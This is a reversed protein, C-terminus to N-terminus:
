GGARWREPTATRYVRRKAQIGVLIGRSRARWRRRAPVSECRDPARRWRRRGPAPCSRSRTSCGRWSACRRRAASFAAPPRTRPNPGRTPARRTIDSRFGNSSLHILRPPRM